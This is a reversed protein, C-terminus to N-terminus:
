LGRWSWRYVRGDSNIFFIRQKQYGYTHSPNYTTYTNGYVSTTNGYTYGTANGTTYSTAPTTYSVQQSYIFVKGDSGDSMVQQPAGWAAILDSENSGMWSEMITNVKTPTMCSILGMFGLLVALVYNRM